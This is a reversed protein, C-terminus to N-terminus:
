VFVPAIYMFMPLGYYPNLIQLPVPPNASGDGATGTTNGGTVLGGNATGLSNPIFSTGGGGGGGVSLPGRSILDHQHAPINSATEVVTEGGGTLGLTYNTATDTSGSPLTRTGTCVIHRGRLDPTVFGRYTTGDCFFWPDSNVPLGSFIPIVMGTIFPPQAPRWEGGAFTYIGLLGFQADTKIWPMGQADVPPTTPGYSFFTSSDLGSILLNQAILTLAQQFTAPYCTSPPTLAATIQPTIPM